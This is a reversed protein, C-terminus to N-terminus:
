HKVENVVRHIYPIAAFFGAVILLFAFSLYINTISNEKIEQKEIVKASSRNVTLKIGNKILILELQANTLRKKSKAYKKVEIISYLEALDILQERYSTFNKKYNKIM